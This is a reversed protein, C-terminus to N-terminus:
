SYASSSRKKGEEDYVKATTPYGLSVLNSIDPVTGTLETLPCSRLFRATPLCNHVFVASEVLTEWHHEAVFFDAIVTRVMDLVVKIHAEISGEHHYPATYQLTM